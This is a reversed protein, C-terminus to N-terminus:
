LEGRWACGPDSAHHVGMGSVRAAQVLSCASEAVLRGDRADAERQAFERISRRQGKREVRELERKAEEVLIKEATQYDKQELAEKLQNHREPSLDLRSLDYERPVEPLSEQARIQKTIFLSFICLLAFSILTSDM